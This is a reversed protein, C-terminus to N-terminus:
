VLRVSDTRHKKLLRLPRYLYHLPALAKPIRMAHRDTWDPTLITRVYRPFGGKHRPRFGRSRAVQDTIRWTRRWEAFGPMRPPISFLRGHVLGAQAVVNPDAFAREVIADPLPAGLLLWALFAGQLVTRERGREAARTLLNEWDLARRALLLAVDCLWRLRVWLHKEGGHVCLYLLLDEHVYSRFARGALTVRQEREQLGDLAFDRAHHAPLADWHLELRIGQDPREFELECDERLIERQRDGSAGGPALYGRELLLTRAHEVDRKPVLVDIDAFQRRTPDGYLEAALVPGKLPMTRIGHNEFLEVVQVLERTMALSKLKIMKVVASLRRRFEPPVGAWACAEFAEQLLPLVRSNEGALYLHDWDISGAAVTARVRQVQAAPDIVSCACYILDANSQGWSPLVTANNM